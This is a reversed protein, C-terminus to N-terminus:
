NNRIAMKIKVLLENISQKGKQYFDDVHESLGFNWVNQDEHASMAIIKTNNKLLFPLIDDAINDHLYFDLLILDPKETTTVYSDVSDYTEVRYNTKLRSKLLFNFVPDDELIHILYMLSLYINSIM